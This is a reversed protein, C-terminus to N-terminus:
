SVQLKETFLHGLAMCAAWIFVILFYLSVEANYSDTFQDVAALVTGLIGVILAALFGLNM